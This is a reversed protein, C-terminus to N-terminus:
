IRYVATPHPPALYLRIVQAAAPDRKEAVPRKFLPLPDLDHDGDGGLRQDELAFDDPLPCGLTIQREIGCLKDLHTPFFLCHDTFRDEACLDFLAAPFSSLATFSKRRQFPSSCKTLIIIFLMPHQDSRTPTRYKKPSLGAREKCINM